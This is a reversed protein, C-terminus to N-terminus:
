TTGEGDRRARRLALVILILLLFSFVGWIATAYGQQSTFTMGLCFLLGALFLASQFSPRELRAGMRGKSLSAQWSAYSLTALALACGLVWLANAALNAWDIM